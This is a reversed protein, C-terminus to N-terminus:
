KEGEVQERATLLRSKVEDIIEPRAIAFAQDRMRAARIALEQHKGALVPRRARVAARAQEPRHEAGDYLEVLM